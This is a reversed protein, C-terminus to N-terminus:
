DNRKYIRVLLHLIKSNETKLYIKLLLNELWTNKSAVVDILYQKQEEFSYYRKRLVTILTELILEKQRGVLFNDINSTFGELIARYSSYEKEVNTNHTISTPNVRQFYTRMNCFCMTKVYKALFFTWYNDEHIIGEKFWIDNNVCMEKRILRNPGKLLDGDFTLLTYKIFLQNDTYQPIKYITPKGAEEQKRFFGGQVLDVNPHQEVLAYMKELTEPIIEDDSDLFYLYEGKAEKIGTNRAASLGKNSVHHVIKFHIDGEYSAVLKEVIEISHDKGCDDVIVCEIGQTITQSIISNFCAEIYNEVNYVPLIISIKYQCNSKM